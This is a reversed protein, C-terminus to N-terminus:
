SRRLTQLPAPLDEFPAGNRLTGHKRQILPVCHQWDYSSHTKSNLRAHRAVIVDGAVVVIENPYLRTRDPWVRRSHSLAFAAAANIDCARTREQNCPARREAMPELTGM